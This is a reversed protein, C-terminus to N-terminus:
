GIAGYYHSIGNTIRMLLAHTEEMPEVLTRRLRNYKPESDDPYTADEQLTFDSLSPADTPFIERLLDAAAPVDLHFIMEMVDQKSHGTAPAFAPLKAVLIFLHQILAIRVAHLVDLSVPMATGEGRLGMDILARDLAISDSRLRAALQLASFYRNDSALLSALEACPKELQPENGSLPRTAWFSGDFLKMYAIMTKIESLSKAKAVLAMLRAFRDSGQQWETFHEEETSLAQGMGGILNALLGMQQLIANHPIARIKRLSAEEEGRREFQRKSVRSGTKPLLSLGLASLTTHYAKDAFLDEQRAKVTRYFDLSTATDEYFEDERTLVDAAEIHANLLGAIVASALRENGFLVYGDGGQYSSEQILHIGRRDFQNRAWPSLAYLCRDTFSKQHNGRGMSEGHTDFVLADLHSLGHRAIIEAFHGQLREIALTAPIQGMFRGADSFGAQIAVRGRANAYDKDVKQGLLVDLIRRSRDLAPATEFLPCIDIHREVGFQRALYITALVTVPNECEAILLRIPQDADIHKVIQKMAILLRSASSKEIALSAFNVDVPETSEIEEEVRELARRGFLDQDSVLNLIHRAANRIQSANLRFHIEGAGLGFNAMSAKLSILGMAADDDAAVAIAADAQEVLRDVSVIRGPADVTLHDAAKALNAADFEKVVFLDIAQRAHETAADLTESLADIEAGKANIGALESKYFALRLHKEILRHRIVDHWGIDNRGDMDYGVWTALKVPGPLVERWNDPFRKRAEELILRNLKSIATTGNELAKLVAKHEYALSIDADPHHRIDKLADRLDYDPDTAARALHERQDESLIFTPHATFVVIDRCKQWFAAFEEVSQCKDCLRTVMDALTHHDADADKMGLYSSLYGARASFADDSLSKVLGSLDELSLSGSEIEVSVEHALQRVPNSLPDKNIRGRLDELRGKLRTELESRTAPQPM